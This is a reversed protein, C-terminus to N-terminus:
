FLYLHESQTPSSFRVTKLFFDLIADRKEDSWSDFLTPAIVFNEAHTLLMRSLLYKKYAGEAELIDRIYDRIAVADESTFSFIAVTENCSTPFINLATRPPDGENSQRDLDFFVSAAVAPVQDTLRIIEHTLAEYRCNTLANDLKTKYVYAAHAHLMREVAMIGAAEPENGNDIGAAIRHEYMSQVKIAAEMSAHLERAVARYAYLFLQEPNEADLPQTDIPRFLAADHTSCFGEFTTALNRGVDKWVISFSEDKNIKPSPAKVHGDRHLIAMVTGNQVSHAHIAPEHCIVSPALCRNLRSAQASYLMKKGLSSSIKTM